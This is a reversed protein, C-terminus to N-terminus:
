GLNINLDDLAEQYRIAENKMQLALNKYDKLKIDKLVTEIDESNKRSLELINDIGLDKKIKVRKNSILNVIKKSVEELLIDFDQEKFYNKIKLKINQDLDIDKLEVGGLIEKSIDEKAKKNNLGIFEGGVMGINGSHIINELLLFNIKLYKDFGNKSYKTYLKKDQKKVEELYLKFEKPRILEFNKNLFKKLEVIERFKKQKLKDKNLIFLTGNVGMRIFGFNELFIPYQRKTKFKYYENKGVENKGIIIESRFSWSYVYLLYYQASKALKLIDKENLLSESFFKNLIRLSKEKKEKYELNFNEQTKFEKQIRKLTEGQQKDKKENEKKLQEEKQNSNYKNTLKIIIDLILLGFIIWSVLRNYNITGIFFTNLILLIIAILSEIGILINNKIVSFLEM